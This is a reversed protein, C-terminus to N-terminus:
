FYIKDEDTEKNKILLVIDKKEGKQAFTFTSILLLVFYFLKRM